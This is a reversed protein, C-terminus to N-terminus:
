SYTSVLLLGGALNSLTSSAFQRRSFGNECRGRSYFGVLLLNVVISGVSVKGNLTQPVMM